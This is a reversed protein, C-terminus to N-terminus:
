YFMYIDKKNQFREQPGLLYNLLLIRSEFGVPVVFVKIVVILYWSQLRQLLFRHKM